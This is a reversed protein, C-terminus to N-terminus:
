PVGFRAFFFLLGELNELSKGMCLMHLVLTWRLLTLQINRVRQLNRVVLWAVWSSCQVISVWVM